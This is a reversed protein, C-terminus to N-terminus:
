IFPIFSDEKPLRLDVWDQDIDEIHSHSGHTHLFVQILDEFSKPETMLKFM